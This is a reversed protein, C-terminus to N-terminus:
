AKDRVLMGVLHDLSKAINLMEESPIQRLVEHTEQDVVKVVTTGTDQDMSFEIQKSLTKLAENVSQVAERVQGPEPPTAPKAGQGTTGPQSGAQGSQPRLPQVPAVEPVAQTINQIQM